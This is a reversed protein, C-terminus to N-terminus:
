LKKGCHPCVKWGNEVPEGCRGCVATPAAPAVPAVPAALIVPKRLKRVLWIIGLVILTLVGLQALGGFIGGFGMMGFGRHMGGFPMMGYGRGEQGGLGRLGHMEGGVRFAFGVGVLVALVVLGLLIGIIWKWNKKM